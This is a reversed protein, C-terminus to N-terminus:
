GRQGGIQRNILRIRSNDRASFEMGLWRGQDDYWTETDQLEGGLRYHRAAILDGARPVMIEGLAHVAIQSAEGTLTNLVQQQQLIAPHWHNTTLLGAPLERTQGDMELQLVEGDARAMLQQQKGNDDVTVQLSQLRGDQWSESARYRYHYSFIGLFRIQLAMEVEVRLQEGERSFRLQHSGIPRGAREVEFVVEEGYLALIQEPSLAGSDPRAHGAASLSLLLLSLCLRSAYRSM